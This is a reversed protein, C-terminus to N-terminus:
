AAMRGRRAQVAEGTVARYGPRGRIGGVVGPGARGCVNRRAEERSQREYDYGRSVTAPANYASVGIRQRWINVTTSTSGSCPTFDRLAVVEAPLTVTRSFSGQSIECRYYDGKEEKEARKTQGKLTLQTGPLSLEIDEKKVGPLEARVVVEGDRHIVDLKPLSTEFPLRWEALRDWRWPSLFPRRLFDELAREIDGHRARRIRRTM